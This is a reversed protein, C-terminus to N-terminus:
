YIETVIQEVASHPAVEGTIMAHEYRKLWTAACLQLARLTGAVVCYCSQATRGPPFRLRIREQTFGAFTARVARSLVDKSTPTLPPVVLPDLEAGWFSCLLSSVSPHIM